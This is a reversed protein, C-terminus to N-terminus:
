LNWHQFIQSGHFRGNEIFIRNTMRGAVISGALYIGEVNTELTEPNHQPIFNEPDTQVGMKQLFDSDPHYGTMALVFDNAITKIGELTEVEIDRPRIEVIRSSFLAQIEGRQIRNNIDPLVWYKIAKGMAEGRHIVTVEAGSRYLELASEAASNNGGVVAVKKGFYPHAESYYHSVKELDEGPVDLLNPNDYYGTSVIVKSCFYEREQELRDRSLVRFEGDRGTVSLVREYDRIPLDYHEVVRRYYKLGDLRSPKDASVIMPIDGVELLDATTFFTMNTPYRYISHVVCGKELVWFKLKRKKAEIACALGSPGAGVVILDLHEKM